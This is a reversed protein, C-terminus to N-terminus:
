QPVKLGSLRTTNPLWPLTNLVNPTLLWASVYLPVVDFSLKLVASICYDKRLGTEGITWCLFVSSLRLAKFPFCTPELTWSLVYDNRQQELNSKWKTFNMTVTCSEIFNETILMFNGIITHIIIITNNNILITNNNIIIFHIQIIRRFVPNDWKLKRLLHSKTHNRRNSLFLWTWM